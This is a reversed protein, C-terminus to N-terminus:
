TRRLERGFDQLWRKRVGRPGRSTNFPFDASSRRAARRPLTGGASGVIARWKGVGGHELVGDDIADDLPLLGREGLDLRAEVGGAEDFAARGLRLGEAPDLRAALLV